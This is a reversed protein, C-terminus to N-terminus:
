STREIILDRLDDLKKDLKNYHDSEREENQDVQQELNTAKEDVLRLELDLQTQTVLGPMLDKLDAVDAAVAQMGYYFGGMSPLMGVVFVLIPWYRVLFPPQHRMKKFDTEPNDGDRHTM